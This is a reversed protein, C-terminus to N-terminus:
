CRACAARTAACSTGARRRRRAGRARARRTRASPSCSPSTKSRDDRLDFDVHELELKGAEIKSFDLIDNIIELLASASRQVRRRSLAAPADCRAHRAAARDHRARREDAHPDRPEHQRPVASKARSAAEAAEKAAACSPRTASAAVSIDFTPESRGCRRGRSDREVVKGETRMWVWGGQQHRMRFVGNGSGSASKLADVVTQRASDRDDPHILEYLEAATTTFDQAPRGLM